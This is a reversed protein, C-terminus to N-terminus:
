FGLGTSGYYSSEVITGDLRSDSQKVFSIKTELQQAILSLFLQERLRWIQMKEEEKLNTNEIEIKLDFEFRNFNKLTLKEFFEQNNGGNYILSTNFMLCPNHESFRHWLDGLLSFPHLSELGFEEVFFNLEQILELQGNFRMDADIYIGYPAKLNSIVVVKAEQWSAGLLEDDFVLVYGQKIEKRFIKKLYPSTVQDCFIKVRSNRHFYLFSLVSIKALRCYEINQLVLFSADYSQVNSTGFKLWRWRIIQWTLFIRKLVKKLKTPIFKRFRFMHYSKQRANQAKM